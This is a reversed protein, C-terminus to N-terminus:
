GLETAPSSASRELPAAITREALWSALGNVSQRLQVPSGSLDLRYTWLRVGSHRVAVVRSPPEDDVQAYILAGERLRLAECYALLQYYDSSRALGLPAVKYKVDGVYLATGGRRLVLDPRIPVRRQDDLHIPSQAEVRLKGRLAVTLRRTVFEEFLTPMDLLFSSASAQGHRDLLTLNQAILRALRLPARYHESLRTITLGDFDRVQPRAPTVEEFRARLSRLLVRTHPALEILSLLREVTGLLLRNEPVDATYEDFVCPLPSPLVASRLHTPFDIRGRPAVLRERQERYTRLLGRTTAQEVSRAFFDAFAPLIEMSTALAVEDKRWSGMPLGADLLTFLNQLGVKPRIVVHLGPVALTGVRGSATIDWRGATPTPRVSVATTGLAALHRVTPEPLSLGRTQYETLEVRQITM